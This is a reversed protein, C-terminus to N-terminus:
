KILWLMPLSDTTADSIGLYVFDLLKVTHKQYYYTEYLSLFSEIVCEPERIKDPSETLRCLVFGFGHSFNELLIILMVPFM